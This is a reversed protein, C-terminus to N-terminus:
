NKIEPMEMPCPPYLDRDIAWPKTYWRLYDPFHTIWYDNTHNGENLHWDHPIGANEMDEHLKPINPHSVWDSGGLDLYIRLNGLPYSLATYQPNVDPGAFTDLLAASHGGVSVFQDAHRFAIELAWYGGRSVGGIARGQPDAWACSTSEVYPILEQLILAEYSGSGGSTFQAAWGGRPMVIIFPPLQHALIGANAMEDVGLREWITENQDDGTGHLLYLVPYVRGDAGYCPPLYLRYIQEPTNIASAFSRTLLQGAQQCTPTPTPRPSPSPVFTPTPTPLATPTPNFHVTALLTATPVPLSTPALAAITPIAHLAPVCGVLGLGWLLFFLLRSVGSM